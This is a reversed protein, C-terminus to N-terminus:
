NVSIKTYRSTLVREILYSQRQYFCRNPWIEQHSVRLQAYSEEKKLKYIFKKFSM